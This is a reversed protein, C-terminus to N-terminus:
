ECPGGFCPGGIYYWITESKSLNIKIMWHCDGGEMTDYYSHSFHWDYKKCNCNVYVCLDGDKYFFIYQRGYERYRRKINRFSKEQSLPKSNLLKAMTKEAQRIDELTVDKKFTAKRENIYLQYQLTDFETPVLVFGAFMTDSLCRHFLTLTDAPPFLYTVPPEKKLNDPYTPFKGEQMKTIPLPYVLKISIRAKRLWMPLDSNIKYLTKNRYVFNDNYYIEESHNYYKLLLKGRVDLPQNESKVTDKDLKWILPHTNYDQTILITDHNQKDFLEPSVITKASDENDDAIILVERPYRTYMAQFKKFLSNWWKIFHEYEPTYKYNNESSTQKYYVQKGKSYAKVTIFDGDTVGEGPLTGVIPSRDFFAAKVKQLMQSATTDDLTEVWKNDNFCKSKMITRDPYISVAMDRNENFCDLIISDLQAVPVKLQAMTTANWLFCLAICLIFPCKKM